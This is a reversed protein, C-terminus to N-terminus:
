KIIRKTEGTLFPRNNKRIHAKLSLKGFKLVKQLNFSLECNRFLNSLFNLLIQIRCQSIGLHLKLIHILRSFKNWFIFIRELKVPDLLKIIRHTIIQSFKTFHIFFLHLKHHTSDILIHSAGVDIPLSGLKQIVQFM